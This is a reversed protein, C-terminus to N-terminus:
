QNASGGIADYSGYIPAIVSVMIIGVIAAMVIILAPEMFSVMKNIAMQSEYDLTDATADLMTDLSGTEEGIMISSVLKKIFGDVGDLADSLNQGARIKSVVEEFQSEIYSNGVTDKSIMLAQLMPLGASYLSSLTRAFRASYLVRLLKGFTPIHLKARDALLRVKPIRFILVISSVLIIAGILFALWNQTLSHSFGMMFVTLPPLSEMQAFMEDFQPLIFTFIFVVVLIIMFSLIAPYVMAGSVKAKLLFEKEYHDAMRLAVKDMSGSAEASRYMYIM